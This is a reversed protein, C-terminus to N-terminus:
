RLKLLSLLAVFRFLVGNLMMIGICLAFYNINYGGKLLAGCRTILWVGSYEKAGAIIFAELTWKPYCFQKIFQPFKPDTGVLVLVVPLLASCLQALGLEFWIALTYGIGTVCYVLALLVLYNDRLTSRPNNFFYFTSLFVIPKVVTNFHDVTDRALFYAVSSMGSERERWYQLREPSFSRLAALQCLLAMLLQVSHIM